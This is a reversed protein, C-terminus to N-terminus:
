RRRAIDDLLRAVAIAAETRKNEDLALLSNKALDLFALAVEQPTWGAEVAAKELEAFSPELRELSHIFRDPHDAPLVPPHVDM